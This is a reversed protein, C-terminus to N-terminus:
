PCHRAEQVSDFITSNYEISNSNLTYNIEQKDYNYVLITIYILCGFRDQVTYVGIEVDFYYATCM